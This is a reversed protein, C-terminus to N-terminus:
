LFSGMIAGAGLLEALRYAIGIRTVIWSRNEFFVAQLATPVVFFLWVLGGILAGFFADKEMTLSYTTMALIFIWLGIMTLVTMFLNSAIAKSAGEKMDASTKESLDM